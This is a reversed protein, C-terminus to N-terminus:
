YFTKLLHFYHTIQLPSGHEGTQFITAIRQVYICQRKSTIESLAKSGKEAVPPPRLAVLRKPQLVLVFLYVDAILTKILLMRYVFPKYKISGIKCDNRNANM